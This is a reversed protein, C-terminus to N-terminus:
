SEQLLIWLNLTIAKGFGYLDQCCGVTMNWRREEEEEELEYMCKIKLCTGKLKQYKTAKDVIQINKSPKVWVFQKIERM